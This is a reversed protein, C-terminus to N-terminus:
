LKRFKACKNVTPIMGEFAWGERSGNLLGLADLAARVNIPEGCHPQMSSGQENEGADHFIVLGGKTIHKEVAEFDAMVCPKGHCADIFAVSIPSLKWNSLVDVSKGKIVPVSMEALFPSEPLEIGVSAAMPISRLSEIVGKLTDGNAVGIEVYLPLDFRAMTELVAEIFEDEGGDMCIGLKHKM